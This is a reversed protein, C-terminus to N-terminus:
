ASKVLSIAGAGEGRRFLAAAEVHAEGRRPLRVRICAGESPASEIELRGGHLEILSRAIALGLGSGKSGNELTSGATEFPRAIRSLALESIGIGTDRVEIAIEEDRFAATLDVRGGRPTFKVANRLLRRLVKEIMQRDAFVREGSAVDANLEVGKDEALARAHDIAGAVMPAVEVSAPDLRVRGAEINSMDLIDSIISLLRQGSERIHESYEVYRPCGLEGFTQQEMM